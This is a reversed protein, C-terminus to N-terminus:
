EKRINLNWDYQYYAVKFHVPIKPERYQNIYTIMDMGTEAFDKKYWDFIKSIEVTKEVDNLRIFNNDNFVKKTQSLIQQEISDPHYSFSALSPCGEAGCVVAFHIREDNHAGLLMKHEIEDLTLMERAVLHKEGSFFSRDDKPSKLDQKMVVSKIVTLNCANMWFAKKYGISKNSLDETEMYKVLTNLEAPNAYLSLYDVQGSTVYKKFFADALEFFNKNADTQAFITLGKFLFFLILLRKMITAFRKEFPM